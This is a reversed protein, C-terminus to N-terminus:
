LLCQAFLKKRYVLTGIRVPVRRSMSVGAFDVVGVFVFKTLWSLM